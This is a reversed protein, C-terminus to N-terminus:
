GRSGVGGGTERAASFTLQKPLRPAEPPGGPPGLPEARLSGALPEAGPGWVAVRKVPPPFRYILTLPDRATTEIRLAPDKKNNGGGSRRFSMWLLLASKIM